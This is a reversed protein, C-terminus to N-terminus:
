YGRYVPAPVYVPRDHYYGDHHHHYPEIICATLPLAAVALLLTLRLSRSLM